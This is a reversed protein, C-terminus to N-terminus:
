NESNSDESKSQIEDALKKQWEEVKSEVTKHVDTWTEEAELKAKAWVDGSAAKLEDLNARMQDCKTKLKAIEGNLEVQKDGVASEAQEKFANIKTKLAALKSEMDTEFKQREKMAALKEEEQEIKEVQSEVDSDTISMDCGIAGAILTGVALSLAMWLFQSQKKLFAINM